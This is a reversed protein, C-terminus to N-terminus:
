STLDARSRPQSRDGQSAQLGGTGPTAVRPTRMVEPSIARDLAGVDDAGARAADNRRRDADPTRRRRALGRIWRGGAAM